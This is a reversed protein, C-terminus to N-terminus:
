WVKKLDVIQNNAKDWVEIHTHHGCNSDTGCFIRNPGIGRYTLGNNGETGIVEGQMVYDGTDVAWNGHLMKIKYNGNEVILITNNHRDISVKTITGSIPSLIDENFGMIDFAGDDHLGQSFTYTDYIPLLDVPKTNNALLTLTSILILLLAKKNM